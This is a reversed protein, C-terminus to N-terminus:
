SGPSVLRGSSNSTRVADILQMVRVGDDLSCSPLAARRAVALFHEMEAMFMSNRDWGNPPPFDEWESRAVRYVRASGTLLDCTLTGETGNVQLNHSPPQQAFDLHLTGLAGGAFRLGIEATDEVDVELDSLKAVFGWVDQVAGVLWPLYDLAHCQTLLVGGGLDARAAYGKRYDEWPHWSPLHEGYHVHASMIRGLEGSSIARRALRVAPHFRFQFGILVRASTRKVVGRLREADELSDGVPKELLISCGTEAAQAASDVHMSTPNAIIVGDPRHKALAHGLDGEVEFGELEAEPMSSRHSRVLVLDKAGLAMLNRLHRRGISGLGVILIKTM